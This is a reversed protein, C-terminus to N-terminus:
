YSWKGDSFTMVNSSGTLNSSARYIKDGNSREGIIFDYEGGHQIFVNDNATVNGSYLMTKVANSNMNLEYMKFKEGDLDAYFLRNQDVVVPKNLHNGEVLTVTKQSGYKQRVINYTGDAQKEYYYMFGNEMSLSTIEGNTSETRFNEAKGGTSPVCLYSVNGVTDESTFFVRDLSIGILNVKDGYGSYLVTPTFNQTDVAVVENNTSICYATTDYIYALAVNDAVKALNKGTKTVKYLAHDSENVFYFYDGRINFSSLTDSSKYVCAYSESEPLFKYIGRGDVIHYVVGNDKDVKGGNLLNGIMAGKKAAEFEFDSHDLYSVQPLTTVETTTERPATTTTTTTRGIINEDVFDAVEKNQLVSSFYFDTFVYKVSLLGAAILVVLVAIIVLLAKGFGGKKKKRKKKRKRKSDVQPQIYAYDSNKRKM